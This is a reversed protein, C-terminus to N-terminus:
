LSFTFLYHVNPILFLFMTRQNTLQNLTGEKLSLLLYYIFLNYLIEGFHFIHHMMYELMIVANWIKMYLVVDQAVLLKSLLINAKKWKQKTAEKLLPFLSEAM